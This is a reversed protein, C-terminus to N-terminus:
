AVSTGWSPVRKAKKERQQAKLLQEKIMVNYVDRQNVWQRAETDEIGQFVPAVLVSAEYGYLAKFHSCGLSSHYFTNYWFEAMALWSKQKHSSAHVVCRLYM